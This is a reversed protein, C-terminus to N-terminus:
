FSAGIGIKVGSSIQGDGSINLLLDGDITWAGPDQLSLGASIRGFAGSGELGSFGGTVGLRPTFLAGSELTFQRAIEAGLSVRLQEVTFGDIALGQGNGNEVSYDLVQENLYAASLRPTLTTAEDLQWRGSIATDFLWRRTDFAGDWLATDITNASGGYLLSTDWFVGNRIELSAYPGALWGDGTLQAGTDTPDSMRDYHFSLGVLAKDNLLYDAGASVVGFSGWRNGNQVRNHVMFTGDVWVNFPSADVDAAMQGDIAATAANMQALSAAFNLILGDRSPSLSSSVPGSAVQMRRRELLGPVKITSAILNQRAQVAGRVLGGIEDVVAAPDYSLIYTATGVNSAGLAGLLRYRVRVKGSFAPNPTFKLYLQSPTGGGTAAYLTDVVEATGASAPDVSVIEAEWFPGGTAGATLDVNAPMGGEPVTIEHDPVTAEREGVRLIYTARATSDNGDRAEITFSYDGETGSELPGTLRGTSVNLIMGDPLSGDVTEYFVPDVGGSSTIAFGYDEGAMATPLSSGDAPDMVIVNAAPRVVEVTYTRTVSSAATVVVTITNSGVNLDIPNSAAGSVVTAGDVTITAGSDAVTPTISITATASPVAASYSTTGSAFGPDLTGTSVALGSLAANSSLTNNIVPHDLINPANGALDTLGGAQYDLMVVQGAAVAENLGLYVVPSGYMHLGAPVSNGDVRVAVGAVGDLTFQENFTLTIIVGNVEASVLEPRNADISDNNGIIPTTYTDGTDGLSNVLTVSVPIDAAAPVDGGGETVTFQAMYTTDSARTLGSLPFGGIMSGSGLTFTDDSSAVTIIATVTSGIKMPSNPISVATISPQAPPAAPALCEVTGSVYNGEGPPAYAFLILRNSEGIAFTDSDTHPDEIGSSVYYEAYDESDILIVLSSYEQDEFSGSATASFSIIEGDDFGSYANEPNGQFDGDGVSFNGWDTNVAECAASAAVSTGTLSFGVFLAILLVNALQSLRRPLVLTLM